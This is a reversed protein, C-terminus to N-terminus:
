YKGKLEQAWDEITMRDLIVVYDTYIEQAEAPIDVTETTTTVTTVEYYQPEASSDDAAAAVTALLALSFKMRSRFFLFINNKNYHDHKVM